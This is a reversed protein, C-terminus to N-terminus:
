VEEALAGDPLDQLKQSTVALMWEMQGIEDKIGTVREIQSFTYVFPQDMSEPYRRSKFKEVEEGRSGAIKERLERVSWKEQAAQELWRVAQEPSNNKKAAVYHNFSLTPFKDRQEPLYFEAAGTCSRFTSVSVGVAEAFQKFLKPYDAKVQVGADGLVWKYRASTAVAEQCKGKLEEWKNQPQEM